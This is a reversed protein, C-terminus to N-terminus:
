KKSDRRAALMALSMNTQQIFHCFSDYQNQSIAEGKAGKDAILIGIRRDGAYIAALLCNDVALLREIKKSSLHRYNSIVKKTLWYNKQNHICLSFINDQESKVPFTFDERWDETDDGLIYKAQIRTVKPDCLCLTVRELGIGRHIGEVVMQFLTNVDVGQEVMTAIERLVNLQLQPDAKLVQPLIEETAESTSPIYSCIKNAGYNVAVAAAKDAGEMVLQRVEDLGMGTFLSAQVLVENFQESDWGKEAALTIQEGLLVAQTKEDPKDGPDLAALLEGGMQWEKALARTIDKISTGLIEQELEEPSKDSNSALAEDLLEAAEGKCSWFAMDGTHLLLGTIFVEERDDAPSKKQLLGEAQVATHFGRGMWELMREQSPKKLLSDVVMVSLCIAKIGKFGLQVVARSITTIENDTNPNHYASNAIRLVKVTLAADKLIVESLCAASSESAQTVTNIEKMVGGLVPLEVSNLRNVWQELKTDSM